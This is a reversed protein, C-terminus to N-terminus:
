RPQRELWGLLIAVTRPDHRLRHGAGSLVRLDVQGDAADALARADVIPVVEDNGGHILLIPRPPISGVLDLPRVERLERAWGALDAPFADDRIVGLRRCSELFRRPDASWDGFDGPAGLAAVGRLRDDQGAACLSLSGGTGFGALWVGSVDPQAMLYDIAAELDARWGTASFSGQSAGTGRLSPALVVWGAEAALRNALRHCSDGAMTAGRASDPFGHCVVLGQRATLTERNPRVLHARLVLDGSPIEVEM